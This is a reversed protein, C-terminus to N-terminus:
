CGDGIRGCFPRIRWPGSCFCHNGDTENEKGQRRSSSLFHLQAATDRTGLRDYWLAPMLVHRFKEVHYLDEGYPETNERIVCDFRATSAFPIAVERTYRHAAICRQGAIPRQGRINAAGASIYAVAGSWYSVRWPSTIIVM